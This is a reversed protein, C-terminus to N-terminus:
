AKPDRKAGYARTARHRGATDSLDRKLGELRRAISDSLQGLDDILALLRPRLDGGEEVPLGELRKCLAGVRSELPALDVLGGTNLEARARSILGALTGLTELPSERPSSPTKVVVIIIKSQALERIGSSAGRILASWSNRPVM